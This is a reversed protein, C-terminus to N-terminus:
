KKVKFNGAVLYCMYATDIISILAKIRDDVTIGNEKDPILGNAIVTITADKDTFSIKDVTINCKAQLYASIDGAIAEFASKRNDIIKGELFTSVNLHFQINFTKATYDPSGIQPLSVFLGPTKDAKADGFFNKLDTKMFLRYENKKDSKENRVIMNSNDARWKNLANELKTEMSETNTKKAAIKIALIFVMVDIIIGMLDKISASVSATSIGGFFLECLIAILAIVGVIGAWLTQKDMKKM